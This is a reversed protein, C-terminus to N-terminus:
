YGAAQAYEDYVSANTREWAPWQVGAWEDRELKTCYDLGPFSGNHLEAVPCRWDNVNTLRGDCDRGDSIFCEHVFEGDFEWCYAESSWGEDHTSARGWSLSQGPKLTIKVPSGNICVWFRANRM